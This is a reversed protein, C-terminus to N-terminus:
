KLHTREYARVWRWGLYLIFGCAAVVVVMGGWGFGM